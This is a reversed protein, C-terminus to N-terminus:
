TGLTEIVLYKITDRFHIRRLPILGVGIRTLMERLSRKQTYDFLGMFLRMLHEQLHVVSVAVSGELDVIVVGRESNIGLLLDLLGCVLIGVLHVILDVHGVLVIISGNTTQSDIILRLRYYRQLRDYINGPCEFPSSVEGM